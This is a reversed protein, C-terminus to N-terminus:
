HSFAPQEERDKNTEVIFVTGDLVTFFILFPSQSTLVKWQQKLARMPSYKDHSFLDILNKQVKDDEHIHELQSCVRNRDFPCVYYWQCTTCM